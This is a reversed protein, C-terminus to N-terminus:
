ILNTICYMYLVTMSNQFNWVFKSFNHSILQTFSPLVTGSESKFQRSDIETEEDDSSLGEHHTNHTGDLERKRRRRMKRGERDAARRQKCEEVYLTM